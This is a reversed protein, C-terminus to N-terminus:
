PGSYTDGTRVSGDAAWGAPVELVRDVAGSSHYLRLGTEAAPRADRTVGTVRGDRIWIMDIPYSVGRMWFDRPGVSDYVFLMGEGPELPERGTLGHTRSTDTAAVEASVEHGGVRVGVIDADAAVESEDSTSVTLVIALVLGLVLWVLLVAAILRGRM